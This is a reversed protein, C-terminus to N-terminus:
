RHSEKGLGPWRTEGSVIKSCLSRELEASLPTSPPQRAVARSSETGGPGRLQSVWDPWLIPTEVEADTGGISAWSQDGKPLVSQIEKSDLPSELTKELVM